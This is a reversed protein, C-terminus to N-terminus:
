RQCTAKFTTPFLKTQLYIYTTYKLAHNVYIGLRKSFRSSAQVTQKWHHFNFFGGRRRREGMWPFVMDKQTKSTLIRAIIECAMQASSQTVLSDCGEHIILEFSSFFYWCCKNLCNFLGPNWDDDERFVICGWLPAQIFEDLDELAFLWFLLHNSWNEVFHVGWTRCWPPVKPSASASWSNLRVSLESFTWFHFAARVSAAFKDPHCRNSSYASKGFEKVCM